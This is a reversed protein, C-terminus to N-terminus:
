YQRSSRYDIMANIDKHMKQIPGIIFRKTSNNRTDTILLAIDDTKIILITLLYSLVDKIVQNITQEKSEFIDLIKKNLQNFDIHLEKVNKSKM